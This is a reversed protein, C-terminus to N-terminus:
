ARRRRRPPQGPLGFLGAARPDYLLTPVIGVLVVASVYGLALIAAASRPTPHGAIVTFAGHAVLPGYAAAALLGITFLVPSGIAADAWAAILWAIGAAALLLGAVHRRDRRISELGVVIAIWASAVWLVTDADSFAPLAVAHPERSLWISAITAVVAVAVAAVGTAMAASERRM